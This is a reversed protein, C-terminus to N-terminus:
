GGDHRKCCSPLRAFDGFAVTKGLWMEDEADCFAEVLVWQGPQSAWRRSSTGTGAGAQGPQKYAGQDQGARTKGNTFRTVRPNRTGPQPAQDCGDRVMYDSSLRISAGPGAAAVEFCAPCWCSYPCMLVEGERLMFYQYNSLIGTLRDLHGDEKPREIAGERAWHFYIASVSRM